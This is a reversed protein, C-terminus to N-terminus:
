TPTRFMLPKGEKIARAFVQLMGEAAKQEQFTGLTVEFSNGVVGGNWKLRADFEQGDKGNVPKVYLVATPNPVRRAAEEAEM